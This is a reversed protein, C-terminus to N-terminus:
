RPTRKARLDRTSLVGAILLESNLRKGTAQKINAGFGGVPM